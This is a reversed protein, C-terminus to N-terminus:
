SPENMCLSKSVFQTHYVVIILNCSCTCWYWCFVLSKRSNGLNIVYLATLFLNKEIKIKKTRKKYEGILRETRMANNRYHLM